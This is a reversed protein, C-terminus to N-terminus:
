IKSIMKHRWQIFYVKILSVMKHFIVLKPGLSKSAHYIRFVRLYYFACNVAFTIRAYWFTDRNQRLIFGLIAMFALTLDFKNWVSYIYDDFKGKLRKSPESLFERLEGIILILM